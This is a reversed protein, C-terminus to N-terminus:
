FPLEEEEEPKIYYDVPLACTHHVAHIDMRIYENYEDVIAEQEILWEEWAKDMEEIQKKTM